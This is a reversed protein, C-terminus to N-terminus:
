AYCYLLFLVITPWGRSTFGQNCVLQFGYINAAILKTGRWIRWIKVRFKINRFSETSIFRLGDNQLNPHITKVVSASLWYQKYSLKVSILASLVSKSM